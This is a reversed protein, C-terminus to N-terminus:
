ASVLCRARKFPPGQRAWHVSDCKHCVGFYVVCEIMDDTIFLHGQMDVTEFTEREILSTEPSWLVSRIARQEDCKKCITRLYHRDGEVEGVFHWPQDFRGVMESPVNECNILTTETNM